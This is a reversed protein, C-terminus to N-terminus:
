AVALCDNYIGEIRWAEEEISPPLVLAQRVDDLKARNDCLDGLLAALAESDDAAYTFGCRYDDILETLGGLDATILPVRAAIANLGTTPLNEYWVSPIVVASLKALISSLDAHDYSGAFVIREDDGALKRLEREYEDEHFSGGYLLLRIPRDPLLQMAQVVVHPGKHRLLTGIFGLVLEDAAPPDLRSDHIAYDTGWPIHHWNATDFGEAAHREITWRCPSVVAAARALLASGWTYRERGSEIRCASVCAAGEDATPCRSGDLRLLNVRACLYYFDAIHAIVPLDLQEAAEFAQPLRMPHMVHVVESEEERLVDMLRDVVAHEQLWPRALDPEGTALTRVWAGDYAYSPAGGNAHGASTVVVPEHGMRTLQSALNLTLREVGTYYAPFFQHTVLAVRM